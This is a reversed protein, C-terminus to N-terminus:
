MLGPIKIGGTLAGMKKDSSEKAKAAADKVAALVLDELMEIEQPNVVEPSIKVSQIQGQGNMIVKVAGGGASGEVTLTALEEQAKIFLAQLKQAQQLMNKNM